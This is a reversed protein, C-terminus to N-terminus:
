AAVGKAIELNIEAKEINLKKLEANIDELRFQAAPIVSNTLHCSERELGSVAQDIDQLRARQHFYGTM